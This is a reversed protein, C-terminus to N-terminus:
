APEHWALNIGTSAAVVRRGLAARVVVDDEVHLAAARDSVVVRAAEAEHHEIGLLSSLSWGSSCWRPM